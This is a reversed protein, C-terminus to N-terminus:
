ENLVKLAKTYRTILSAPIDAVRDSHLHDELDAVKIMNASTVKQIRLIYETYLENPQRTLVQLISVEGVTLWLTYDEYALLYLPDKTSIIEAGDEITDHLVAPVKLTDVVKLMVRLAHLIDLHDGKDRRGEHVKMAFAIAKEIGTQM